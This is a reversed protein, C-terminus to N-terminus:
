NVQELSSMPMLISFLHSLNYCSTTNKKCVCVEQQNDTCVLVLVYLGEQVKLVMQLYIQYM